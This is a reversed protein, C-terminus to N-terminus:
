TIEIYGYHFSEELLPLCLAKSLIGSKTKKARRVEQSTGFKLVSWKLKIM